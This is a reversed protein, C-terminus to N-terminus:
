RYILVDANDQTLINELGNISKEIQSKGVCDNLEHKVGSLLKIAKIIDRIVPKKGRCNAVIFIESM